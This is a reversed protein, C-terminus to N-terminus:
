KFNSFSELLWLCSSFITLVNIKIKEKTETISLYCKFCIPLSKYKHFGYSFTIKLLNSSSKPFSNNAFETHRVLHLLFTRVDLNTWGEMCVWCYGLGTILSQMPGRHSLSTHKSLKHVLSIGIMPIEMPPLPTVLGM